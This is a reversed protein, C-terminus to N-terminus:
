IAEAEQRQAQNHQALYDSPIGGYIKIRASNHAGILHAHCKEALYASVESLGAASKSSPLYTFITKYM